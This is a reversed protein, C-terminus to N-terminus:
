FYPTICQKENVHGVDILTVESPWASYPMSMIRCRVPSRSHTICRSCAGEYTSPGTAFARHIACLVVATMQIRAFAAQFYTPHAADLYGLSSALVQRSGSRSPDCVAKAGLCPPGAQSRVRNNTIVFLAGLVYGDLM